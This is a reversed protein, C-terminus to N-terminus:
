SKFVLGKENWWAPHDPYEAAWADAIAKDYAARAPDIVKDYAAWADAIAKDYAARTPDAFAKDYAARADAIVKDRAAWAPAIVKDRAAWADAIAQQSKVPRLAALRIKREPEPKETLIYRIRNALPETLNEVMESHHICWFWTGIPYDILLSEHLVIGQESALTTISKM